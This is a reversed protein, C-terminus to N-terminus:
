VGKLRAAIRAPDPAKRAQGVAAITPPTRLAAVGARRVDEITLADIKGVIEERTPVHGLAMLQRAIQDARAGASELATLLSVKMQARARRLEVETLDNACAALCDLAVDALEATDKHAAAACFGFLGSDAYSWQFSDISYALGRKERVEQFLRSSMGGGAINSFVHAAYADAHNFGVSEFGIVLQTQELKRNLRSDGGVYRAPAREAAPRSPLAGFHAEAARAIVDHDVAGAAAIVSVGTSYHRELYALISARDFGALREPTGLIPRGIPQDPFAAANFLDFVLDDPTDNVEGIEQEIVGKERALETADFVSGTLIDALIDLVMPADAGLVRANYTTFEVSTAANLDGGASEIEEVIARAGRKRTGKFAMHEILHSLGHEDDREDRAGAGVWVGVSATELEPMAHTVVRLGSPLTTLAVSM